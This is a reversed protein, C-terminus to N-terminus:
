YFTYLILQLLRDTADNITCSARASIRTGIPISIPYFMSSGPHITDNTDDAICFMDEIVAAESGAGGVAIDIYWTANTRSSNYGTIGVIFGKIPTTTASTIEYWSGKTNTTGGPDISVGRTNAEYAGYTAEAGLPTNAGFMSSRMISAGMSVNITGTYSSQAKASIRSGAPVVIPCLYRTPIKIGYSSNGTEYALNRLVVVENGSSGIGIDALVGAAVNITYMWVQLVGAYPTSSVLQVWNASKTNASSGTAVTTVAYGNAKDAKGILSWDSM